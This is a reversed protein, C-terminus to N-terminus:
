AAQTEIVASLEAVERTYRAIMSDFHQEHETGVYAPARATYFRLEQEAYALRDSLSPPNVLAELHARPIAGDYLPALTRLATLRDM